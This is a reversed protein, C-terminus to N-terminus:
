VVHLDLGDKDVVNDGNWLALMQQLRHLCVQLRMQQRNRLHLLLFLQQYLQRLLQQYQPPQVQLYPQISPDVTQTGSHFNGVISLLRAVNQQVQGVKEEVSPTIQVATRKVM